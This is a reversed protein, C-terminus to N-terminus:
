LGLRTGAETMTKCIEVQPRQPHHFISFINM